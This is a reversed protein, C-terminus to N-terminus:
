DGVLEGDAINSILAVIVFRFGSFLLCLPILIFRHDSCGSILLNVVGQTCVMALSSLMLVRPASFVMPATEPTYRSAQFQTTYQDDHIIWLSISRRVKVRCAPFVGIHYGVLLFAACLVALSSTGAALIVLLRRHGSLLEYM